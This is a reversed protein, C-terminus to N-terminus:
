TEDSLIEKEVERVLYPDDAGPLWYSEVVTGDHLTERRWEGCDARRVPLKDFVRAPARGDLTLWVPVREHIPAGHRVAEVRWWHGDLEVEDGARVDTAFGLIENM